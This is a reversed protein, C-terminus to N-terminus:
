LDASFEDFDKFNFKNELNEYQSYDSILNKFTLSKIKRGTTYGNTFKIKINRTYEPKIILEDKLLEYSYSIFNAGNSDTLYIKDTNELPDLCITKETNNKRIGFNGKM